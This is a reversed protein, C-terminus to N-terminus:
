WPGQLGRVQKRRECRFLVADNLGDQGLEADGGVVGGGLQSGDQIRYGGHAADGAPRVQVLRQLRDECPRLFLARWNM